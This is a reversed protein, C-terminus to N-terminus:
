RILATSCPQPGPVWTHPLAGPASPPAACPRWRRTPWTSPAFRPVTRLHHASCRAPEPAPKHAEASSLAHVAKHGSGDDVKAVTGPPLEHGILLADFQVGTAAVRQLHRRPAPPISLQGHALHPDDRADLILWDSRGKGDVAVPAAPFPVPAVFEALGGAGEAVEVARRSLPSDARSRGVAPTAPTAM